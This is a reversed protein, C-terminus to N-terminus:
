QYARPTLDFHKKFCRGFYSPDTFGVKESVEVVPYQNTSLLRAAEKLRLSQIFASASLGTIEKLKMHLLSRSVAMNDVLEAVKFDADDLNDYVIKIAKKLFEEDRDSRTVETVEIGLEAEFRQQWVTKLRLLNTLHTELIASNFPKELYVDAGQKLGDFQHQVGTRATLLIIPIHSTHIDEKVKRCLQLGDMEPMMVDSIIIDPAKDKILGWADKGNMAKLVEYKQGLSVALYDILDVNDEAIVLLPKHKTKIEPIQDFPTSKSVEDSILWADTKEEQVDEAITYPTESVDLVVKFVSGKGLKSELNIQGGHLEALSKTLSLGIGSGTHDDQQNDVQYFREFVQKQDEESIGSGTDSVNISILQDSNEKLAVIVEGDQPTFKFANSLLNSLISDIVKEDFFVQQNDLDSEWKYNLGKSEAMPKFRLCIDNFTSVINAQQKIVEFQGSESKRFELLQNILTQLRKANKSVLSIINQASAEMQLHKIKELPDIILSLPTRFEHSVNTFFRMKHQNLEKIKEKELREYELTAKEAQRISHWRRYMLLLFMLILFYLAYGWNSKWFPPKIQIYISAGENNWVGDNNSAKVLFRYKGPPVNTYSAKNDNGVEHWQEEFGDLKYAFKNASPATYDMAAFQFDIMNQNYKLLISDTQYIPKSLIGNQDDPKLEENLLAMRVIKVEPKENNFRIDRPHFAILGNVLGMYITGDSHKFGAKYNFQQVPLGDKTSFIRFRGTEPMYRVMGKSTTAWIHHQDDEVISCINNDPLDGQKSYHKISWNTKDLHYLGSYRSGIWLSGDHAVTLENVHNPLTVTTDTILDRIPIFEQQGKLRVNVGNYHTGVWLNGAEDEEIDYTFAHGLAGNARVFNDSEPRYWCLGATTGIWLIGESDKHLGYISNSPLDGPVGNSQYWKYGGKIKKNLGGTYSGIWLQNDQDFELAHINVYSLGNAGSKYHTFHKDKTNFYNIGGDETGFWLNSKDDEIIQSVAKGSMYFPAPGAQYYKFHNGKNLYVNIGGFYTGVWMNGQRDQYVTYVANDNISAPNNFDQLHSKMSHNQPNYVNIGLESGIWIDGKNDSAMARVNHSSVQVATDQYSIGEIRNGDPSVKFVGYGSVLVYINGLKDESIGEVRYHSFKHKDSFDILRFDNPHDINEIRILSNDTSLWYTQKQDCWIGSVIQKKGNIQPSAFEEFLRSKYNYL